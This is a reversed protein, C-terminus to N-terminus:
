EDVVAITRDEAPVAITRDEAQVEIVIADAETIVLAPLTLGVHVGFVGAALWTTGGRYKKSRWDLIM